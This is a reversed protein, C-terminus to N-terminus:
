GNRKPDVAALESARLFELMRATWSSPWRLHNVLGRLYARYGISSRATFDTGCQRDCGGVRRRSSDLIVDECDVGLGLLDSTLLEANLCTGAIDCDNHIHMVRLRPNLIRSQRISAPPHAVPVQPCPDNFARYPNPASYLVAAAIQPRNLAYLAAMAAGSSWGIIYIRQEDVKGVAIQQEVFHDITAADPNEAHVAGDLTTHVGPDLQRYWNDWGLTFGSPWPYHHRMYRGAPALLIFGRDGHGLDASELHDLLNTFLVSDASLFGSPHLYIVLPLPKAALASTPEYLCAYRETGETDRWPGILVGSWCM